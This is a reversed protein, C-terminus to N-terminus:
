GHMDSTDVASTEVLTMTRPRRLESRLADSHEKIKSLLTVEAESSREVIAAQMSQLTPQIDVLSKSIAAVDDCLPQWSDSLSTAATGAIEVVQGALGQLVETFATMLEEAALRQQEATERLVARATLTTQGEILIRLGEGPEEFVARTKALEEAYERMVNTLERLAGPIPDIIVPGHTAPVYANISDAIELDLRLLLAEDRKRLASQAIFLVITLLLGLLTNDFAVAIAKAFGQPTTGGEALFNAYLGMSLGLVTGFFGILPLVQVIDGPLRYTADIEAADHESLSKAYADLNGRVQGQRIAAAISRRRRGVLTNASSEGSGDGASALARRERLYAPVRRFLHVVAIAFAVLLVAQVISRGFFFQYAWSGAPASREVIWAGIGVAVLAILVTLPMGRERAAILNPLAAPRTTTATM